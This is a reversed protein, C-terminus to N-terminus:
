TMIGAVMGGADGGMTADGSWGLSQAVTPVTTGNAQSYGWMLTNAIPTLTWTFMLYVGAAAAPILFQNGILYPDFGVPGQPVIMVSAPPMDYVTIPTNPILLRAIKILPARQASSRNVLIRASILLAYNDNNQGERNQGVIKGIKNLIDTTLNGGRLMRDIYVAWIADELEQIEQLYSSLLAINRPKRLMVLLRAVGEAVVATKQQLNSM